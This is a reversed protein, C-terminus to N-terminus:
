FANWQLPRSKRVANALIPPNLARVRAGNMANVAEAGGSM